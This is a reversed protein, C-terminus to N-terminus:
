SDLNLIFISIIKQKQAAVEHGSVSNEIIDTQASILTSSVIENDGINNNAAMASAFGFEL